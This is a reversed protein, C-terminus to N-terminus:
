RVIALLVVKASGTMFSVREERDGYVQVPFCLLHFEWELFSEIHSTDYLVFRFPMSNILIHNASETLLWYHKTTGVQAEREIRSQEKHLKKLHTILAGLGPLSANNTM